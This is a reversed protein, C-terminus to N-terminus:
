ALQQKSFLLAIERGTMEETVGMERAAATMAKPHNELMVDLNPASIIVAATGFSELVEPNFVGCLLLGKNCHIELISKGTGPMDLTIGVATTGDLSIERVSVGDKDLLEM